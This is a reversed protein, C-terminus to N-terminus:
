LCGFYAPCDVCTRPGSPAPLFDGRAIGALAAVYAKPPEVPAAGVLAFRTSDEGLAEVTLTRGPFRRAGEQHLLTRLAKSRLDSKVPGSPGAFTVVVADRTPEVTAVGVQLSDRGIPIDWREASEGTRDDDGRIGEPRDLGLLRYLAPCAVYTGVDEERHVRPPARRRGAGTSRGKPPSTPREIVKVSGLFPSPKAVADSRGQYRSARSLSVVHSARSLALDFIWREAEPRGGTLPIQGAAVGGLHVARFARDRAGHITSATM